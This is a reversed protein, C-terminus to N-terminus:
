TSVARLLERLEAEIEEEGLVTEAIESRLIAGYRQRMRHVAVKVAGERIDLRAAVARYAPLEGTDTLYPLLADALPAHSDASCTATLGDYCRGCLECEALEDVAEAPGSAPLYLIRRGWEGVPRGHTFGPRCGATSQAQRRM